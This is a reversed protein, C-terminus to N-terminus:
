LAKAKVQTDWTDSHTDGSHGIELAKFVGEFAESELRILCGPFLEPYLAVTFSVELRDLNKESTERSPSGKLGTSANILFAEGRTDQDRLVQLVGNQVSWNFGYPALLRTLVDRTPGRTSIGVNLAQKLEVSREVEPPLDLNMSNAADRLVQLVQIPPKYSRADMRAHSYARAGDGIKIFTKWEVGDIESYAQRLDGKCLLRAVGDYGAQLIVTAPKKEVEARTHENLNYVVIEAPNPPKGLNRRVEFTFRLKEIELANGVSEFFEPNEAIFGTPQRAVSLKATHKFLRSM